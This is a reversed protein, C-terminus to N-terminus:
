NDELDPSCLKCLCVRLIRTNFEDLQAATTCSAAKMDGSITLDCNVRPQLGSSSFSRISIAFATHTHSELEELNAKRGQHRTRGAM